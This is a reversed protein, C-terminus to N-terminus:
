DTMIQTQKEASEEAGYSDIKINSWPACQREIGEKWGQNNPTGIDHAIYAIKIEEGSYPDVKKKNSSAAASQEAKANTDERTTTQGGGCATISLTLVAAIGVAIFKKLM